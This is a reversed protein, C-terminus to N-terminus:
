RFRLAGQLGLRRDAPVAGGSVQEGFLDVTAADLVSLRVGVNVRRGSGNEVAWRGFPAIRGGDPLVIAYDMEMHLRGADQSAFSRGTPGDERWLMAMGSAADGWTPELTFSLGGTARSPRLRVSVSAGWDRFSAEQHAVLARGRAEVSLGIGDHVYGIGAGAEAGAGTEADGGDFRAGLEVRSTISSGGSLGWRGGVESALRLRRVNAVVGPLDPVEDADTRVAFADAKVAVVGTLRQRVGAATMAMGISTDFQRRTADEFLDATGRGAGLLGWVSLGARPSWRAYPYVSTLRADVTGTGNIGSEFGISSTTRSLALGVLPGGGFRYDAGLYASRVTGDLALDDEPRGEFGGANAQGWFTWGSPTTQEGASTTREGASTTQEGTSTTQESPATQEGPTAQEGASSSFRFSSGTLLEERSLPDVNVLRGWRPRDGPRGTFSGGLGNARGGPAGFSEAVGIEASRGFVGALGRVAGADHGGQAAARVASALSGAGHSFRVGLLGAAQRALEQWGCGEAATVCSLSRGGVRLHSEGMASPGDAEGLRGGIAELTETGVTRGFAALSRKLIRARDSRAAEVTVLFSQEADAGEPDAARVTVLSRGVALPHITLISGAVDVRVSRPTESAAFYRLEDGDPDRFHASLDVVVPQSAVEMTKPAIASVVEPARNEEAVVDSATRSGDVKHAASTQVSDHTLVAATTSGPMTVSGGNASLANAAISYSAAGGAANTALQDRDALFVCDLGDVQATFSLADSDGDQDTATYRYTTVPQEQKPTGSITRSKANFTMGVPPAPALGYTLPADGGQALPLQVPHIQCGRIWRQPQITATDFSPVLDEADDDLISGTILVKSITLMTTDPTSLRLTVDEDSEHLTDGLVMVDLTKRTEGPAFVLTDPLLAEYDTGSTATGTGADAYRM